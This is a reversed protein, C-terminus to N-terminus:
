ASLTAASSSPTSICTSSRTRPITASSSSQQTITSGGGQSSDHMLLTKVAVRGLGRIDVGSHKRFRVDETSIAAAVLNPSLDEFGVYTRNEIHFTTLLEGGEAIVHTALKSDPHELEEFSPIKAFMWVIFLLLFVLGFPAAFLLWFIRIIKKKTAIEM